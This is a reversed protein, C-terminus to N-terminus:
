WRDYHEHRWHRRRDDRWHDRDRCVTTVVERYRGHHERHEVVQRCVQDPPPGHHRWPRPPSYVVPRPRPPPPVYVVAPPPPPGYVVPQPPPYPRGGYYNKDMENGVVYGLVGGVATGILTGETDRGIAQGVLAGSGAGLLLGNIGHDQAMAQGTLAGTLLVASLAMKLTRM